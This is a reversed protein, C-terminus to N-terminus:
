LEHCIFSGDIHVQEFTHAIYKMLAGIDEERPQPIWNPFWELNSSLAWVIWSGSYVFSFLAGRM